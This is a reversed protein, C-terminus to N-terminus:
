RGWVAGGVKTIARLRKAAKSKTELPDQRFNRNRGLAVGLLRFRWVHKFPLGQIDGGRRNARFKDFDQTTRQGGDGNLKRKLNSGGREEM